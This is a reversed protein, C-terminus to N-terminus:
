KKNAKFIIYPTNEFTATGLQQALEEEAKLQEKRAVLEAPFTWKKKNALSITGMDSKIENHGKEIFDALIIPKLLEEEKELDSIAKKLMMWKNIIEVSIETKTEEM